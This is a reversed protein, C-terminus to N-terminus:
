GWLSGNNTEAMGSYYGLSVQKWDNGIQLRPTQIAYENPFGAEHTQNYGWSLMTGDTNLIAANVGAKIEKCLPFTGVMVPRNSNTTTGIGLQYTTNNVWAWLTNDTKLAYSSFNGEAVQKWQGANGIQVPTDSSITNGNGIQGYTNNGVTWISGDEKLMIMHELGCAVQKGCQAITNQTLLVLSFWLVTKSFLLRRM